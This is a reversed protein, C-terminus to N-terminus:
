VWLVVGPIYIYALYCTSAVYGSTVMFEMLVEGFFIAFMRIRDNIFQLDLIVQDWRKGNDPMM